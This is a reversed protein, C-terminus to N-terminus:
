RVNNRNLVTNNRVVTRNSEDVYIGFMTVSDVINRELIASDAGDLMIGHNGSKTVNNGSLNGGISYIIQIGLYQNSISNDSVDYNDSGSIVIGKSTNVASTRTVENKRVVNNPSSDINVGIDDNSFINNEIICNKGGHLFIGAKGTGAGSITFGKVTVTDKNNIFIVEKDTKKGVIKTDAPNDSESMLVLNNLDNLRSIDINENYTGPAVIITDGSHARNVAEQISDSSNVRFETATGVCSSLAFILFALLLIHIMKIDLEEM